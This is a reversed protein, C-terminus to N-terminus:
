ADQCMQSISCLPVRWRANNALRAAEAKCAPKHMKWSAKQCALSCFKARKCAACLHVEMQAESVGSLNKCRGSLLAATVHHYMMVKTVGVYRVVTNQALTRKTVCSACYLRFCGCVRLAVNMNYPTVQRPNFCGIQPLSLRAAGNVATMTLPPLAKVASM